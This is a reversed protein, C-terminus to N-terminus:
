RKTASIVKLLVKHSFKELMTIQQIEYYNQVKCQGSFQYFAFFIFVKCKKVAIKMISHYLEMIFQRQQWM